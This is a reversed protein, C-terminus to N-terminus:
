SIEKRAGYGSLPVGIPPTIDVKAVGIKLM